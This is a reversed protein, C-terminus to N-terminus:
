QKLLEVRNTTNIINSKTWENMADAAYKLPAASVFCM